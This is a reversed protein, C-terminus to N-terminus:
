ASGARRPPRYGLLRAVRADPLAWARAPSPRLGASVVVERWGPGPLTPVTPPAHAGELVALVEAHADDTEVLAGTVRGGDPAPVLVAHHRPDTWLAGRTWAPVARAGALWHAQAGGPAFDGYVFLRPM